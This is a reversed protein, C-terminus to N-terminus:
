KEVENLGKMAATRRSCDGERLGGAAQEEAHARM